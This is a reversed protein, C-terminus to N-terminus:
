RRPEPIAARDVLRFARGTLMPSRHVVVRRPALLFAARYRMEQVDRAPLEESVVLAADSTLSLKGHLAYAAVALERHASFLPSNLTRTALGGRWFKRALEWSGGAPADLRLAPLLLTVIASAALVLAVERRGPKM